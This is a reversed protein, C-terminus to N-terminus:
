EAAECSCHCDMHMREPPDPFYEERLAKLAEFDQNEMAQRLEEKVDEPLSEMLAARKRFMGPKGRMPPRCGEPANEKMQEKLEAIKDEDGAEMAAHMEDRLATAEESEFYARCTEMHEEMAERDIDPPAAQGGNFGFWAFGVGAMALVAFLGALIKKNM